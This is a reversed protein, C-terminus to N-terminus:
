RIKEFERNERESMKRPVLKSHFNSLFNQFKLNKKGNEEIFQFGVFLFPPILFNYSSNAVTTGFLVQLSEKRFSDTPPVEKEDWKLKTEKTSSSNQGM